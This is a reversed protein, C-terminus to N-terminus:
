SERLLTKLEKALKTKYEDAALLREFLHSLLPEVNGYEYSRFLPEYSEALKISSNTQKIHDIYEELSKTEKYSDAFRKYMNYREIALKLAKSKKSIKDEM